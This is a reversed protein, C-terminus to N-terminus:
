ASVGSSRPSVRFASSAACRLDPAATVRIQIVRVAVAANHPSAVAHEAVDDLFFVRGILLARDRLDVGADIDEASALEPRRQELELVLVPRALVVQGVHDPQDLSLDRGDRYRIAVLDEADVVAPLEGLGLPDHTLPDEIRQHHAPDRDRVWRCGENIGVDRDALVRYDM